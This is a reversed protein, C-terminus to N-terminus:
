ELLFRANLLVAGTLEVREDYDLTRGKPTAVMRPQNALM